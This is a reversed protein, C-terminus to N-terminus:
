TFCASDVTWGLTVSLSVSTDVGQGLEPEVPGSPQTLQKVHFM